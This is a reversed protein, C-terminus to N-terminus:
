SQIRQGGMAFYHLRDQMIGFRVQERLKLHSMGPVLSLLTQQGSRIHLITEVGLPETLALEGVFPGEPDPRIDEPRIGVLLQSPMDGGAPLRMDSQAIALTGDERSARLLNIRPTGVLTAVFTSAPRDYIDDPTGIQV